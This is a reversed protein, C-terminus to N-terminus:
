FDKKCAKDKFYGVIQPVLIESDKFPIYEREKYFHEYSRLPNLMLGKRNYYPLLISVKNM